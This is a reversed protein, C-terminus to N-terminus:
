STVRFEFIESESTNEANDTSIVKWYYTTEATVSTELSSETTNGISEVPIEATGFVIEYGVIDNDIDSGSWTLTVMGSSDTLQAGRAPSVAEAPFPAYNEIGPGQNYFKFNSSSATVDTGTARSVVSWEYPAGREIVLDIQELSVTRVINENTTLNRLNIEYSDTDEAPNWRFTVTSQLENIIVGENCETNNEPFILTTAKPDAIAAPPTPPPPSDDGGGGCSTIMSLAIAIAGIKYVLKM